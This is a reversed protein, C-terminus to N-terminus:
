CSECMYIYTVLSTWIHSLTERSTTDSIDITWTLNVHLSVHKMTCIHAFVWEYTHCLIQVLRTVDTSSEHWISMFVSMSWIPHICNTPDILNYTEKAFSAQLLSSIRCFLGKIKNIRSVTAVGYTYIHSLVWEYTHCLIKSVPVKRNWAHCWENMHSSDRCM